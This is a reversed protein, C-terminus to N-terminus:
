ADGEGLIARARRVPLMAADHEQDIRATMEPSGCEVYNHYDYRADDAKKALADACEKLADRLEDIHDLADPLDARANAILDMDEPRDDMEPTVCVAVMSSPWPASEETPAEMAHIEGSYVGSDFYVWQGPTAKECRERMADLTAQNM